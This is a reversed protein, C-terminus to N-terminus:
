SGSVFLIMSFVLYERPQFQGFVLNPVAYAKENDVGCRHDAWDSLVNGASHLTVVGILCMAFVIWPTVGPPVLGKSFLWAFTVVVPMSSVPFSWYRTVAVWEKFSHKM